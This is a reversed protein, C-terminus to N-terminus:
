IIEKTGGLAEYLPQKSVKFDGLFPVAKTAAYAPDKGFRRIDTGTLSLAPAIGLIEGLIDVAPQERQSAQFLDNVINFYEEPTGIFGSYRLAREFKPDLFIGQDEELWWPDEEGYLLWDKLAQSAYARDRICM